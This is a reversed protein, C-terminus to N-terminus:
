RGLGSSGRAVSEQHEADGFLCWPEVAENGIDAGGGRFCTLDRLAIDAGLLDGGLLGAALLLTILWPGNKWDM